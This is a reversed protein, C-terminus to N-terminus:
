IASVGKKCINNFLYCSTFLGIIYNYLINYRIFNDFGNVRILYNLVILSPFIFLLVMMLYIMIDSHKKMFKNM